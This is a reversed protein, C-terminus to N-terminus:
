PDTDPIFLHPYSIRSTRCYYDKGLVIDVRKLNELECLQELSANADVVGADKGYELHFM